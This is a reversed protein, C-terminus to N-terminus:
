EKPIRIEKVLETFAVDVNKNVMASTKIWKLSRAELMEKIKEDPIVSELDIKNEVAVVAVKGAAEYLTDLWDDIHELTELRSRDFV